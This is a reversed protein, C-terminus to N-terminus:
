LWPEGTEADRWQPSALAPLLPQREVAASPKLRRILLDGNADIGRRVGKEEPLRALFQEGVPKFGQSQWRDVQLLFHRSFSAILEAADMMEFGEIELSTGKIHQHDLPHSGGTRHRALPVSQRLQLGAVLWDTTQDEAADAPWALRAGGLIGGDLIITDPYAFSLPKEPPCHVALADGAANMVAFLACRANVLPEEPELVLAIEVMDFRRVWVLTGAGEAAAVAQAHEFADRHERLIVARFGPPLDLGGTMDLNRTMPTM